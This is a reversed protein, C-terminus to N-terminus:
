KSGQSCSSSSSRPFTATITSIKEKHNFGTIVRNTGENRTVSLVSEAGKRVRQYRVYRKCRREKMADKTNANFVLVISRKTEVVVM